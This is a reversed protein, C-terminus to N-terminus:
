VSKSHIESSRGQDAVGPQCFESVPIREVGDVRFHDGACHTPRRARLDAEGAVLVNPSSEADRRCRKNWAGRTGRMSNNWLDFLAAAFFRERAAALATSGASDLDLDISTAHVQNASSSPVRRKGWSTRSPGCTARRQGMITNVQDGAAPLM